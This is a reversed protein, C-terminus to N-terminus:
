QLPKLEMNGMESYIMFKFPNILHNKDRLRNLARQYVEIMEMNKPYRLTGLRAMRVALVNDGRKLLNKGARIFSGASQGGVLDVALAVENLTLPDLGEGDAHWYGIHERAVRQILAERMMLFPFVAHPATKLSEPLSLDRLIEAVTRGGKTMQLTKEITEEIAKELGPLADVNFYRTLPDHGHILHKAGLQRLTQITAILAEPSGESAWPAGFYPMLVDGVIVIGTKRNHIMLADVTEGGSVPILQLELAGIMITETKGILRDPEFHYVGKNMNQGFVYKFPLPNTNLVHLEQEYHQSAIVKTNQELFVSLGGIHDWHSHTIIITHIPKQTVSRLAAKAKKASPITTGTDVLVVGETTEWAIINAFDYGQIVWMKEAIEVVQPKVFLYGAESSVSSDALFSTVRNNSLFHPGDFSSLGAAQFHRKANEKDGLTNYARALASHIGRTGPFPLEDKRALVSKLDKVASGARGFLFGPLESEVLAKLYLTEISGDQAAEDLKKLASKVWSIRKLVPVEFAMKAMLAGESAKLLMREPYREALSHFYAVGQEARGTAYFLQAMTLLLVSDQQPWAAAEKFSELTYDHALPKLPASACGFMMTAMTGIVVISRITATSINKEVRM